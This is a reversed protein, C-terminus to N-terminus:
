SIIITANFPDMVVNCNIDELVHMISKIHELESRHIKGTNPNVKLKIHLQDCLELEHDNQTSRDFGDQKTLVSIIGCMELYTHIHLLNSSTM